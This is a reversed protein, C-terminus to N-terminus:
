KNIGGGSPITAQKSPQSRGESVSAATTQISLRIGLVLGSMCQCAIIYNVCDFVCHDRSGVAGVLKVKKAV